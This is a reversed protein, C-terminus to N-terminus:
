APVMYRTNGQHIDVWVIGEQLLPTISLMFREVTWGHSEM